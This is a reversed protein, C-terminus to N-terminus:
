GSCGSGRATKGDITIIPRDVCTQAVTEDRLRAIWANFAAEFAEPKLMM